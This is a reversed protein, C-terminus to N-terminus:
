LFDAGQPRQQGLVGPNNVEDLSILLGKGSSLAIDDDSAVHRQTVRAGTMKLGEPAREYRLNRWTEVNLTLGYRVSSGRQLSHRVAAGVTFAPQWWSRLVGSLCIGDLGASAKVLVNKNAQWSAAVRMVAPSPQPEAHVHTIMQLGVDIYNSIGVVDGKELPNHVTRQVTMHHLFSLALRRHEHLEVVATFGSTGNSLKNLATYALAYSTTNICTDYFQRRYEPSSGLQDMAAEPAVQMGILLQRGLRKVMWARHLVNRSPNIISGVSFDPSTYRAGFQLSDTASAETLPLVGFLALNQEPMMACGRIVASSIDNRTKARIDFFTYPHEPIPQYRLTLGGGSSATASNPVAISATVALRDNDPPSFRAVGYVQSDTRLFDTFLSRLNPQHFALEYASKAFRSRARGERPTILPPVLVVSPPTNDSSALSSLYVGM